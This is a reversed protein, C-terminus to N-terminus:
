KGFSGTAKWPRESRQGDEAAAGGQARADERTADEGRVDEGGLKTTM